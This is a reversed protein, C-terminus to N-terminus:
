IKLGLFSIERVGGGKKIGTVLNWIIKYIGFGYLLCVVCRIELKISWELDCVNSKVLCCFM